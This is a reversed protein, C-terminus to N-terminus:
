EFVKSGVRVYSAGLAIAEKYDASMGMSLGLLNNIRALDSLLAFHKKPDDTVPPICMLGKINLGEEICSKLLLSLNEPYVGSKQEEKGTNVQIFYELQKPHNKSIRAIEKVLKIRDITQIVDFLAYAEKVKNTQLPGILHLKIEPYKEKLLPWKKYAEQIKNEAFTKQGTLICEEIEALSRNKSVVILEPKIFSNNNISAKNHKDYIELIELKIEAINNAIKGM